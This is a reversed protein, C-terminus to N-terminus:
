LQNNEYIARTLFYVFKARHLFDCNTGEHLVILLLLLVKRNLNEINSASM